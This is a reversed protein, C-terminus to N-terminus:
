KQNKIFSLLANSFQTLENQALIDTATDSFCTLTYHIGAYCFSHTALFIPPLDPDYGSLYKTSNLLNPTYDFSALWTEETPMPLDSYSVNLLIVVNKETNKYVFVKTRLDFTDDEAQQPLAMTLDMNNKRLIEQYGSASFGDEIAGTLSLFDEESVNGAGGPSRALLIFNFLLSVLFLAALIWTFWKSRLPLKMDM